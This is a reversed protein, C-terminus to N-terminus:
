LLFKGCLLNGALQLVHQHAVLDLCLSTNTVLSILHCLLDSGMLSSYNFTGENQASIYLLFYFLDSLYTFCFIVSNFNYLLTMLNCLSSM